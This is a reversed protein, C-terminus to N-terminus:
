KNPFNVVIDVLELRLTGLVVGMFRGVIVSFTAGNPVSMGIPTYPTFRVTSSDVSWSFLDNM